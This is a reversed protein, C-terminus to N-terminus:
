VPIGFFAIALLAHAIVSPWLVWWIYCHYRFFRKYASYKMLKGLIRMGPVCRCSFFLAAVAILNLIGLAFILRVVVITHFMVFVEGKASIHSIQLPM